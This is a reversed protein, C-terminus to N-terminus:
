SAQVWKRRVGFKRATEESINRDNLPGFVGTYSDLFTNKPKNDIDVIKGEEANDYNSFHTNCSFCHASGDENLSVPDSGGCSPCSLKHKVFAM